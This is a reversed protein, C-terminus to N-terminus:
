IIDTIYSSFKCSPESCILFTYFCQLGTHHVFVLLPIYLIHKRFARIASKVIVGVSITESYSPAFWTYYFHELDLFPWNYMTWFESGYAFFFYMECLQLYFYRLVEHNLIDDFLFLFEVEVPMRTCILDCLVCHFVCLERTCTLNKRKLIAGQVWRKEARVKKGCQSCTYMNDGELTDKVTVEDLSEQMYSNTLTLTFNQYMTFIFKDLPNQKYVKIFELLRTFQKTQFWWYKSFIAFYM